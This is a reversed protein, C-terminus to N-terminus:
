ESGTLCRTIHSAKILGIVALFNQIGSLSKHRQNSFGVLFVWNTTMLYEHLWSSSSIGKQNALLCKHTVQEAPLRSSNSSTDPDAEDTIELSFDIGTLPLSFLLSSLLMQNLLQSSKLCMVLNIRHNKCYVMSLRALVLFVSVLFFM